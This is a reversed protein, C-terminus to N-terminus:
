MTSGVASIRDNDCASNELTISDDAMIVSREVLTPLLPIRTLESAGNAPPAGDEVDLVGTASLEASIPPM